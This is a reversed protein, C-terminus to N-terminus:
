GVVLCLEDDAVFARPEIWGADGVWGVRGVQFAFAAAAQQEHAAEHVVHGVARGAILHRENLTTLGLRTCTAELRVLCEKRTARVGKKRTANVLATYRIAPTCRQRGM